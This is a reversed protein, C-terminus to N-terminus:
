QSVTLGIATLSLAIAISIGGWIWPSGNAFSNRLHFGPTAIAAKKFGKNELDQVERTM